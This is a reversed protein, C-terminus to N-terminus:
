EKFEILNAKVIAIIQQHSAQWAEWVSKAWRRIMEDREQGAAADLVDSVTIQGRTEPLPFKFWALKQKALRMHIHQVERGTCAKELYLYLGILAFNIAIPKTSENAEQAIFIDVIHQHIFDSGPHALTYYSLEAYKEQESKQSM